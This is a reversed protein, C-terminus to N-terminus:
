RSHWYDYCPDLYRAQHPHSLLLAGRIVAEDPEVGKENSAEKGHFYDKVLDRVMPIRTSGGVLLIEDVGVVDGGSADCSEVLDVARGVLDGILEELKSRTLPESFLDDDDDWRMTVVTEQQYSLAKKARECEATLRRLAAADARVDRGGHKDRILDAMHDVVRATFDDGGLFPDHRLAILSPTGDRIVFKTAHATRGGLHFVLIVKGDGRDEHLGHAAAAAVQEDVVSVYRFGGYETSGSSVEQRQNGNFHGPVTVVANDIRHGLHAEATSKLHAILIGAVDEPLFDEVRCKAGDDLQVQISCRGIKEGLKYPAIQAVRKAHPDGPQLGILRKFGSIAAAHDVAPQGCLTTANATFAVWSPICFRYSTATDPPSHYGAICSNTNGIYIAAATGPLYPVGTWGIGYFCYAKPADRRIGFAAAGAAAIILLLLVLRRRAM